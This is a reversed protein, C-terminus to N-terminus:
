QGASRLFTEMSDIINHGMTVLHLEQADDPHHRPVSQADDKRDYQRNRSELQPAFHRSMWHRMVVLQLSGHGVRLALFRNTEPLSHREV